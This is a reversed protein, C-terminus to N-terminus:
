RFVAINIQNGDQVADTNNDSVGIRFSNSTKQGFVNAQVVQATAPAGGSGVTAIISYLADPMPTSFVITYDGTSNRIVQSINGSGQIAGTPGFVAWARCAFVPAAGDASGHFIRQTVGGNDITKFIGDSEIHITRAIVGTIHFGLIPASSSEGRLEIQGNSYSINDRASTVKGFRSTGNTANVVPTSLASGLLFLTGQGAIGTTTAELRVDFDVGNAANHFDIYRGAELVQGPALAGLGDKLYNQLQVYNTTAIQTNNTNVPATPATPVGSFAPSIFNKDDLITGDRDQFTYTRVATNANTFFSTFTGLVNKFNIKLATLGAFGNAADKESKDEKGNFAEATMRIAVRDGINYTRAITGEQGRVVTLVDGVRATVKCVEVNKAADELVVNFTNTGTLAPFKPGTGGTINLSTSIPTIATILKSSALNSLLSSM